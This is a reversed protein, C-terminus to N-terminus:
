DYKIWDWRGHLLQPYLLSVEHDYINPEMVNEKRLFFFFVIEWTKLHKTIKKSFLIVFFLELRNFIM